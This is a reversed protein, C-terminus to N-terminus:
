YEARWPINEPLYDLPMLDGVKEWAMYGEFLLGFTDSYTGNPFIEFDSNLQDIISKQFSVNKANASGVYNIEENEKLYSVQILDKIELFVRGDDTRRIFSDPSIETDILQRAFEPLKEKNLFNIRLSDKVEQNESASYIKKAEDILEQSPREPNPIRRIEKFIYGQEIAKGFYLAQMLHQISGYYARDRNKIVRKLKRNNLSEDNRFLANGGYVVRGEKRSLSFQKLIYDIQYGLNENVIKLVETSSVVLEGPSSEANLILSEENLIETKRSNISSGLFNNKFTKLNRYWSPDREEEVQIEELEQESELLEVRYGQPALQNTNIFFTLTEYGLLRVIVEYNGDPVDIEFEGELNAVAGFTTNNLYITVYPVPTKSKAEVVRGYFKNQAFAQFVPFLFFALLLTKLLKAPRKEKM